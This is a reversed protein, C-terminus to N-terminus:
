KLSDSLVYSRWQEDFQEISWGYVSQLVQQQRAFLEQPSPARPRGRSRPRPEDVFPAKMGNVFARLRQNGLHILFGARSWAVVYDHFKFDGFDPWALMKAAPTCARNRVLGVARQEWRTEKRMDPDTEPPRDFNPWRTDIRRAYCQALGSEFWPPLDHWYGSYGDLLLHVVNFVVHCHLAVDDHLIGGDVDASTAFVFLDSEPFYHRRAYDTEFGTFSRFYRKLTSEDGCLLVSYKRRGPALVPGRIREVPEQRVVAPDHGAEAGLLRSLDTYTEELRQAYLHLRLWRDLKGGAKEIGPLKKQLRALEDRLRAQGVDYTGPKIEPLSSGLRFHETEVWLFGVRGTIEEIAKTDHGPGFPFPGFSEYGARRMAAPTGRTYPDLDQAPLLATLLGLPLERCVRSWSM